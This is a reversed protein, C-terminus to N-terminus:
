EDSARRRYCFFSSLKFKLKGIIKRIKKEMSSTTPIYSARQVEEDILAEFEEPGCVGKMYYLKLEAAERQLASLGSDGTGSDGTSTSHRLYNMEVASM